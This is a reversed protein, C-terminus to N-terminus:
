QQNQYAISLAPFPCWNKKVAGSPQILKRRFMQFRRDTVPIENRRCDRDPRIIPSTDRMDSADHVSHVMRWFYALAQLITTVDVQETQKELDLVPM